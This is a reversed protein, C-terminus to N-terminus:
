TAAAVGREGLPRDRPQGGEVALVPALAKHAGEARGAAVARAGVALVQVGDAAAAPAPHRRPDLQHPREPGVPREVGM